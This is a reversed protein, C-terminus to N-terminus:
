ENYDMIGIRNKKLVSKRIIFGEESISKKILSLYSLSKINLNNYAEVDNMTSFYDYLIGKIEAILLKTLKCESLSRYKPPLTDHREEQLILHLDELM